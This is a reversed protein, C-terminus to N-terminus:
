ETLYYINKERSFVQQLCSLISTQFFVMILENENEIISYKEPKSADINLKSRKLFFISMKNM